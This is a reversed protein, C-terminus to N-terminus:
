IMNMIKNVLIHLHNFVLYEIRTKSIKHNQVAITIHYYVFFIDSLPQRYGITIEENSVFSIKISIINLRMM